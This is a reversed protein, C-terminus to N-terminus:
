LFSYFAGVGKAGSFRIIKKSVLNQLDRTATPKSTNNIRQYIANTLEKKSQLHLVAKVQRPNLGQQELQERSFRKAPTLEPAVQNGSMQLSICKNYLNKGPEVTTNQVINEDKAAKKAYAVAKAFKKNCKKQSKSKKIGSMDPKKSVVIKDGYKKFILEGVPGSLGTTVINDIVIAM